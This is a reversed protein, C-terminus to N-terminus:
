GRASPRMCRRRRAHDPASGAQGSGTYTRGERHVRGSITRSIDYKESEATGAAPEERKPGRRRRYGIRPSPGSFRSGTKTRWRSASRPGAGDTTIKALPLSAAQKRRSSAALRPGSLRASSRDLVIRTQSAPRSAVLAVVLVPGGAGSDTPSTAIQKRLGPDAGRTNGLGFRRELLLEARDDLRRWWCVTVAAPSVPFAPLAPYRRRAHDPV